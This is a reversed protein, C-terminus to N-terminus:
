AVFNEVRGKVFYNRENVVLDYLSMIGRANTLEPAQHIPTFYVPVWDALIVASDGPMYGKYGVVYTNKDMEPVRIVDITGDRLTGIKVPGIPAAVPVAQFSPANKFLEAANFGCLVWSTGGRGMADNIISEAHNLKLEIEGYRQTTSYGVNTKTADFLMSTDAGSSYDPAQAIIARIIRTDRETRIFQAALNSLLDPVDINLHANAALGATVSWKVKLPHQKALVPILDLGFELERINSTAVESDYAYEATVADNSAPATSWTASLVGTTYNITGTIGTGVLNGNGDDSAVRAAGVRLAVSGKRTPTALTGGFTTVTGDGTGLSATLFESAYTGDTKSRFVEQGATVGAATNTFKPKIVFIEGHQRDLPQIDTILASIQNPYFIRVVDMLRKNLKGLGATVTSEGFEERSVEEYKRTREAMVATSALMFTQQSSQDATAATELEEKLAPFKEGLDSELLRAGETITNQRMNQQRVGPDMSVPAAMSSGGELLATLAGM